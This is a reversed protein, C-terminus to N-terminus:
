AKVQGASLDEQGRQSVRALCRPWFGEEAKAQCPRGRGSGKVGSIVCTAKDTHGASCERRAHKMLHKKFHRLLPVCGLLDLLPQFLAKKIFICLRNNIPLGPVEGPSDPENWPREDLAAVTSM